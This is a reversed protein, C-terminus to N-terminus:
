PLLARYYAPADGVPDTVTAPATFEGLDSWTTLDPSKQVTYPTGTAGTLQFQFSGASLSPEGLTAPVSPSSAGITYARLGHNTNLVFLRNGGFAIAGTGNLNPQQPLILQQDLAVPQTPDSIDYLLVNGPTELAVGALRNSSIQSGIFSVPTPIQESTYQTALTASGTTPDFAVHVLPQANATGFVSNGPGFAIGLGFVSSPVGEVTYLQANFNFGDATTLIAFKRGEQPALGRSGLLIQTDAGAGRVAFTDGWREAVSLEPVSLLPEPITDAADDAWRYLNFTATSGDTVLNGAYVVGDDAVGVMNLLLTGGVFLPSGDITTTLSHLDAGSAADLVRIANAPSRSAVLVNGSVPNYALGRETNNATLYPRDGPNLSWLPQLVGTNLPARVTVVGNSSLTIGATNSVIVSYPGAQALTINTLVLQAGNADPIPVADRQWFYSFPPTGQAAVALTVTAGEYVSPSAPQTTIVPPDIVVSEEITAALLGNNSDLGFVSLGLIAAASTGNGNPNATPFPLPDGLRIPATPDSIDFVSLTHNQYDVAALRQETPDVDIGTVGVAILTTSVANLLTATGNSPNLEIRQLGAGTNAKAWIINGTDFAVTFGIQGAVSAPSTFVQPTFTTGDTTTYLLIYKGNRSTQLLQTNTGSGRVAFNDGFRIDQGAGPEPLEALPDGAYAISVPTEPSDDAWRYIRVTGLTSALNCAFVAGDDAAGVLNLTFTGLSIISEFNEDLPNLTRPSGSEESGDSGTAPNLVYIQPGGARSLLLLNGTGPNLDLGRETNGITVYAREDPAITWVSSVTDAHLPLAALALTATLLALPPPLSPKM